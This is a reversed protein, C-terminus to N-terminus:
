YQRDREHHTLGDHTPADVTEDPRDDGKLLLELGANVVRQGHPSLDAVDRGLAMLEVRVCHEALEPPRTM